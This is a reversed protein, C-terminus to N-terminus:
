SSTPCTQQQLLCGLFVHGTPIHLKDKCICLPQAQLWGLSLLLTLPIGSNSDSCPPVGWCSLLECLERPHQQASEPTLCTQGPPCKPRPCSVHIPVHIRAGRQSRQGRPPVPTTRTVAPGAKTLLSSLVSESSWGQCLCCFM